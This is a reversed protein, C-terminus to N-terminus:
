AQPSEFRMRRVFVRSLGAFWAVLLGMAMPGAMSMATFHLLPMFHGALWMALFIAAALLAAAYGGIRLIGFFDIVKTRQM